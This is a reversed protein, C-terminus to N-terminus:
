FKSLMLVGTALNTLGIGASTASSPVAGQAAIDRAEPCEAIGFHKLGLLSRDFPRVPCAALDVHEQSTAM